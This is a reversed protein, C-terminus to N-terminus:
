TFNRMFAILFNVYGVDYVILFIDNQKWRYPCKHNPCESIFFRVLQAHFRRYMSICKDIHNCSNVLHWKARSIGHLLLFLFWIDIFNTKVQRVGKWIWGFHLPVKALWRFSNKKGRRQIRRSPTIGRNPSRQYLKILKLLKWM